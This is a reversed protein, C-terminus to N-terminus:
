AEANGGAIEAPADVLDHAVEEGALERQGPQQERHRQHEQDPGRDRHHDADDAHQM